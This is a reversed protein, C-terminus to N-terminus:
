EDRPPPSIEYKSPMNARYQLFITRCGFLIESGYGMEQETLAVRIWAVDVEAAHSVTAEWEGGKSRRTWGEPTFLGCGWM